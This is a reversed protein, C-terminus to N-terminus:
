SALSLYVCLLKITLHIEFATENTIVCKMTLHKGLAKNIIITTLHTKLKQKVPLTLHTNFVQKNCEKTKAKLVFYVLRSLLM